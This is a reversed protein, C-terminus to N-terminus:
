LKNITNLLDEKNFFNIKDVRYWDSYRDAGSLNIIRQRDMQFGNDDKWDVRLFTWGDEEKQELVSGFRLTRGFTAWVSRNIMLKSRDIMM